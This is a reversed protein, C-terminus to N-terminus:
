HLIFQEIQVPFGEGHEFHIAPNKKYISTQVSVQGVPKKALLVVPVPSQRLQSKNQTPNLIFM